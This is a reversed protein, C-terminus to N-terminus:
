GRVVIIRVKISDNLIGCWFIWCPDVSDVYVLPLKANVWKSTVKSRLKPIGDRCGRRTGVHLNGTTPSSTSPRTHKGRFKHSNPYLSTCDGFCLHGLIEPIQKGDVATWRPSGELGNSTSFIVYLSVTYLDKKWVLIWGLRKQSIYTYIYLKWILINSWGSNRGLNPPNKM